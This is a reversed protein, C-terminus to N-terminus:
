TTAPEASSRRYPDTAFLEGGGLSRLGNGIFAAVMIAAAIVQGRESSAQDPLASAHAALSSAVALVIIEVALQLDWPNRFYYHRLAAAGVLARETVDAQPAEM